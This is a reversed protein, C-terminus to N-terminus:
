ASEREDRIVVHLVYPATLDGGGPGSKPNPYRKTLADIELFPKEM